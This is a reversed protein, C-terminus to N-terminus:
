PAAPLLQGVLDDAIRAPSKRTPLKTSFTASGYTQGTKRDRMSIQLYVLYDGFDWTWHDSYSVIAVTDDSMMTLFGTEAQHGRATLAAVIQHNLARNDNANAVVFFHRVGALSRGRDVQTSYSSCGALLLTLLFAAPITRLIMRM